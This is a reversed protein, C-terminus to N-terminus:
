EKFSKDGNDAKGKLTPQLCKQNHRHLKVLPVKENLTASEGQFATTIDAVKYL